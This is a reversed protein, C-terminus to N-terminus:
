YGHSSNLRTSKRDESSLQRFTTSTEPTVLSFGETINVVAGVDGLELQDELTRPVSAEVPVAERVLKKFGDVEYVLQYTGVALGPINWRGEGDTMVTRLAGTNLNRVTVSVGPLNAGNPDQVVGNLSGTAGAQAMITAPIMLLAAILLAIRITRSSRLPRHNHM